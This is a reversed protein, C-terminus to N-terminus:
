RFGEVEFRDGSLFRGQLRVHQGERLRAVRSRMEGRANRPLTVWVNGHGTDRLEFRNNRMDVRGVRGEVSTRANTEGRRDDRRRVREETRRRARDANRDGVREGTRRDVVRGGGDARRRLSISQTYLDGRGDRNVRMAVLDGRQLTGPSYRRGDYSVSTRSDFRVLATRGDDTRVQVSRSNVDRVEGRVEGGYANPRGGNLVDDLGSGACGGATVAFALVAGATWGRLTRNMDGGEKQLEWSIEAVPV